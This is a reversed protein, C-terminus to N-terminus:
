VQLAAQIRGILAGDLGHAKALSPWQALASQVQKIVEAAHSSEMGAQDALRMLDEISPDKGQGAVLMSQEGGPGHSFTLDFAPALSWTGTEDMLFAINKAHDDRNHALVNFVALRFAMAVQQSDRTLVRALKLVDAYDLSPVRFNAHLLGAVSHLHVRRYHGATEDFWRDFREVGFFGAGSSSQFLHTPPMTLGALRAMEGYIFEVVGSHDGDSQNPFKIIWPRLSADMTEGLNTPTIILTNRDNSVQALTKPRAGGSSGNLHVWQELVDSPQGQVITAAAASMADLSWPETEPVQSVWPWADTHRANGHQTSPHNSQAQYVLAGMGNSGVLALRHLPTLSRLSVGLASLHRDWLLRGWGDPLSDDLVGPLGEFPDKGIPMLGSRTPLHIPSLSLAKSLFAEAYEFYTKGQFLALTGVPIPEQGFDLSVDIAQISLWVELDRRNM